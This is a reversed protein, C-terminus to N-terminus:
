IVLDMDAFVRMSRRSNLAETCGSVAHRVSQRRNTVIQLGKDERHDSITRRTYRNHEEDRCTCRGIVGKVPAAVVGRAAGRM